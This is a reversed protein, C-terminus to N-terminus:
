GQDFGPDALSQYVSYHVGMTQLQRVLRNVNRCDTPMDPDTRGQFFRSLVARIRGEGLLIFEMASESNAPPFIELYGTFNKKQLRSVFKGFHTFGSSLNFHRLEVPLTCVQILIEIIESNYSYVSLRGDSQRYAKKLIEEAYDKRTEWGSSQRRLGFVVVGEQFLILGEDEPMVLHLTGHFDQNKLFLTLKQPDVFSLRFDKWVAKGGPFIM